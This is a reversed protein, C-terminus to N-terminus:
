PLMSPGPLTTWREGRAVRDITELLQDSKLPKSVYDDMGAQLCRERDGKMAHATMAIIPVHAGKKGERKRIVETAEYGDMTPMQVDMLILDFRDKKLASLVEQGNGAVTVEHGHKKLVHVAVMQNVRNDEALLIRLRRKAEPQAFDAIVHAKGDDPVPKLKLSHAIAQRLDSQKVPKNLYGSIGLERRRWIENRVGVATLMMIISSAPSSDKEIMEALAFGDIELVRADLLILAYPRGAERAKKMLTLAEKSGSAETPKMEWNLLMQKLIKRNTANDDVILVPLNKFGDLRAPAIRVAQPQPLEFRATFYFTSGKGAASRVWIKGGM